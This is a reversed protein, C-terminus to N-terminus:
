TVDRRSMWSRVTMFMLILGAVLAASMLGVSYKHLQDFQIRLPDTLPVDDIFDRMRLRLDVMTPSVWFRSSAAAGMMVLLAILRLAKGLKGLTSNRWTFGQILLLLLGIVLGIVEVKGITSTVMQGAVYRSPLVAFASPAVAFSFFIMAGLWVGILLLELFAVIQHGTNPRVSTQESTAVEVM